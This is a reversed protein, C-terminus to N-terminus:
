RSILIKRHLSHKDGSIVAYYIGSSLTSPLHINGDYVSVVFAEQGYSNYLTLVDTPSAGRVYLNDSAPNPWIRIKEDLVNNIATGVTDGPKSGIVTSNVAINKCVTDSCIMGNARHISTYLCVNYNGVMFYHHMPNAATSNNIHSLTDGFDWTRILTDGQNVTTSDYFQIGHGISDKYGFNSGYSGCPTQIGTVALDSVLIAGSASRNFLFRINRVCTMNVGHFDALPIKITNFCVKPLIGGYSGPPMTLVHNYKTVNLSSTHGQSDIVQVSFNLEHDSFNVLYNVAARFQLSVFGTFDQKVVPIANDYYDTNQNFKMHQQSLGRGGSYAGHPEQARSAGINCTFEAGGGSCLYVSDIGHFTVNAGLTNRV